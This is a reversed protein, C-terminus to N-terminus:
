MPPQQEHTGRGPAQPSLASDGQKGARVAFKLRASRKKIHKPNRVEIKYGPLQLTQLPNCPALSSREWVDDQHSIITFTLSGVRSTKWGGRGSDPRGRKQINQTESKSKTVLFSLPKFPTAPRWLDGRGSMMRTLYSRSPSLAPEGQKGDGVALKLRASRKNTHKPNRVEIKYGPPQLTQLPNCPAL